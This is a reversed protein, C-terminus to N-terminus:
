TSALFEVVAKHVQSQAQGLHFRHGGQQFTEIRTHYHTLRSKLFGISRPDVREDDEAAAVYAPLRSWSKNKRAADMGDFVDSRWTMRKRLFRLRDLGLAMLIRQTRSVRAHIAPALLVLGEPRPKYDQMLALTAGFGHGVVYVQKVCESFLQYRQAVEQRYSQWPSPLAAPVELGVNPLRMGYVNHGAEFLAEGLPRLIAPTAKTGHVLLVGTRSDEREFLYARDAEPVGAKEEFDAVEQALARLLMQRARATAGGAEVMRHLEWINKTLSASASENM